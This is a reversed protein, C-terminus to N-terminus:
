SGMRRKSQRERLDNWFWFGFVLGGLVAIPLPLLGPSLISRGTVMSYLLIFAILLSCPILYESGTWVGQSSADKQQFLCSHRLAQISIAGETSAAWEKSKTTLLDVLMDLQVATANNGAACRSGLRLFYVTAAYSSGASLSDAHVSMELPFVATWPIMDASELAAVYTAVDTSEPQFAFAVGHLNAGFLHVRNREGYIRCAAYAIVYIPLWLSARGFSSGFMWMLLLLSASVIVGEMVWPMMRTSSAFQSFGREKAAMWSWKTDAISSFDFMRSELIANAIPSVSQPLTSRSRMAALSSQSIPVPREMHQKVIASVCHAEHPSLGVFAFYSRWQGIAPGVDSFVIRTENAEMRVDRLYEYPMWAITLNGKERSGREFVVRYNTLFYRLNGRTQNWLHAVSLYLSGSLAASFLIWQLPGGLYFIFHFAGSVWLL